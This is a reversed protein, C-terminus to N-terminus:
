SLASAPPPKHPQGEEDAQLPPNQPEQKTRVRRVSGLIISAVISGLVGTIFGIGIDFWRRGRQRRDQAAFLAEVVERESQVIPELSEREDQLLELSEQESRITEKQSEVFRGLQRVSRAVEDLEALQEEVSPPRAAEIKKTELTFALFAFGVVSGVLVLSVAVAKWRSKRYLEALQEAAFKVVYYSIDTM